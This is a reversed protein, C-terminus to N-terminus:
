WSPLRPALVDLREPALTIEVPLEAHLPDGDIQLAIGPPGLIEIRDAGLFRTRGSRRGRLLRWAEGLAAGRGRGNFLRLDLRRDDWRAEPALLYPGAYYGINCAAVHTARHREGDAVLEIEPFGYRMWAAVAQALVAAKGWRAKWPEHLRAMLYGDFGATAQMLFVRGAALGVDMPRRALSGALAAAARPDRPLGLAIAVVNATGAPLVGLATGTGLLGEAVERVTGDGGLAFVVAAGGSAAARALPTAEGPGLTHQVELAFGQRRLLARVQEEVRPGHRRGAKPNVVLLARRPDSM